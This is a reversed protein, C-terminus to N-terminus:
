DPDGTDVRTRGSRVLSRIAAATQEATLGDTVLVNPSDMFLEYRQQVEQAVVDPAALQQATMLVTPDSSGRTRAREIATALSPMLVVEDLPLHEYARLFIDLYAPRVLGDVFVEFGGRDYAAAASALAAIVVRNQDEAEPLGPPTHDVVFTWFLDGPIRVGRSSADALLRAVTAKGSGPPGNVLLTSM